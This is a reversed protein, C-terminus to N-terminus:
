LYIVFSVGEKFFLYKMFGLEEYIKTWEPCIKFYCYVLTYFMGFKYITPLFSEFHSHLGSFTPKKYVTTVIKGKERSVKIDLFSLKGNKEQETSFSM